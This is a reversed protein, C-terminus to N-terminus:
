NAFPFRGKKTPQTRERMAQAFSVQSSEPSVQVIQWKHAKNRFIHIGEAVNGGGTEAVAILSSYPLEVAIDSGVVRHKVFLVRRPTAVAVGADAHHGWVKLGHRFPVVPELFTCAVLSEITEDRELIYQLMRREAAYKGKSWLAPRAAHWQEDIRDPSEVGM